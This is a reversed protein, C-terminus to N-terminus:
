EANALCDVWNPDQKLSGSIVRAGLSLKQYKLPKLVRIHMVEFLRCSEDTLTTNEFDDRKESAHDHVM